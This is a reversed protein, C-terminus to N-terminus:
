RSGDGFGPDTHIVGSESFARRDSLVDVRPDAFLRYDVFPM